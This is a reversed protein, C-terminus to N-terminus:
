GAARRKPPKKDHYDKVRDKAGFGAFDKQYEYQHLDAGEVAEPAEERFGRRFSTFSFAYL